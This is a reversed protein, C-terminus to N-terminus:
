STSWQTLRRAAEELVDPQKCFAFRMWNKMQPAFETTVFASMPIGVVGAQEPLLHALEQTDKIGKRALVNTADLAVFFTGGPVFPVFDSKAIGQLFIDRQHQYTRQFETYFSRPLGVGAAAGIQLPAAASHTFYGKVLRIKEVIDAPATLWGVRWGTLSHTKSIASVFITREKAGDLAFLPKFPESTYTLHEYVGDQIIYADFKHALQAIKTKTARSFLKGTPNHPDNVIVLRTKQSFAAELAEKDPEFTPPVLPVTKMVGQALAIAAPYIDYYPEFVIVEDGPNVLAAITAALAESAGATVLVESEADYNQGYFTKQHKAIAQRLEQRGAIPAYQNVGDHMAQTAAEFIEAPGDTDPFGQGLNIADYKQALASMEEFITSSFGQETLLGTAYGVREYPYEIRDKPSAPM